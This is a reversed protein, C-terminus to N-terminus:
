AVSVLAYMPELHQALLLIAMTPMTTELCANVYRLPLPARRHSRILRGLMHRLVLEYLVLGGILGLMPYDTKTQRLLTLFESGHLRSLLFFTLRSVAAVGALITARLRESLLTERMLQAEFLSPSTVANM